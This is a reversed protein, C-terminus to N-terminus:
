HNTHAGNCSVFSKRTSMYSAFRSHTCGWIGYHFLKELSIDHDVIDFAKSVYFFVGIIFKGREITNTLRNILSLPPMHSGFKHEYPISLKNLFRLLKDYLFSGFAKSLIYLLSVPHYHNFYLLDETKHLPLVCICNETARPVCGETRSSNCTHVLHDVIFRLPLKLLASSIDNYGMATNKLGAILKNIEGAIVLKPFLSEEVM